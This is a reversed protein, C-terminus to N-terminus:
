VKGKETASMNGLSGQVPVNVIIVDYLGVGDNTVHCSARSDSIWTNKTFIYLLKGISPTYCVQRQISKSMIWPYTEILELTSSHFESKLKLLSLATLLAYKNILM